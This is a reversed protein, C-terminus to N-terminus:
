KKAFLTTHSVLLRPLCSTCFTSSYKTWQMKEPFLAENARSFTSSQSHNNIPLAWSAFPVSPSFFLFVSSFSCREQSSHVGKYLFFKSHDELATTIIARPETKRLDSIRRTSVACKMRVFYLFVNFFCNSFSCFNYFSLLETSRECSHTASTSKRALVLMNWCFPLDNWFAVHKHRLRDM